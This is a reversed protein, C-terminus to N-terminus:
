VGLFTIFVNKLGLLDILYMNKGIKYVFFSLGISINFLLSAGLNLKAMKLAM